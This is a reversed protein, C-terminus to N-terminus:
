DNPSPFSQVQRVYGVDLEIVEEEEGVDVLISLKFKGQGHRDCYKFIYAETLEGESTLVDPCDFHWQKLVVGDGLPETESYGTVVVRIIKKTDIWLGDDLLSIEIIM